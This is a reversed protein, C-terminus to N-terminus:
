SAAEAEDVEQEIARRLVERAQDIRGRDLAELAQRLALTALTAMSRFHGDIAEPTLSQSGSSAAHDHPGAADAAAHGDSDSSDVRIRNGTPDSPLPRFSSAKKSTAVQHCGLSGSGVHLEASNGVSSLPAPEPPGIRLKAVEACVATWSIQSYSSMVDGEQGHTVLRLIPKIAGDEIAHTIFTHRADHQRRARLELRALDGQFLQWGTCKKRHTGRRTPLLLDDLEPERGMMDAWGIALWRDLIQALWPHVPVQRPKESKTGKVVGLNSNFSLGVQLKGLPRVDPLYHRVRLASIEGFRMGALFMVAYFARRDAVIRSDTLLMQVEQKTFVANDRWEPDADKRRPLDETDLSCPNVEIYKPIAKKFMARMADYVHRQTRPALEKGGVAVMVEGVHEPRVTDIRMWGIHPLVHHEIRSRYDAVTSIGKVTRSALWANAWRSVTMPGDTDTDGAVRAGRERGEIFLRLVAKAKAEQEPGRFKTAKQKKKGSADEYVITWVRGRRLFLFPNSAM